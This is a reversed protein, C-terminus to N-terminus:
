AHSGSAVTVSVAVNLVCLFAACGYMRVALVVVFLVVFSAVAFPKM